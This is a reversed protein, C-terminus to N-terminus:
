VLLKAISIAALTRNISIGIVYGLQYMFESGGSIEKMESVKLEQLKEM